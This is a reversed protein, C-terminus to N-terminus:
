YIFRLLYQILRLVVAAGGCYLFVSRDSVAFFCVIAAVALLMFVLTLIEDIKSGRMIM